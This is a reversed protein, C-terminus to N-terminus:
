NCTYGENTYYEKAYDYTKIEKEYSINKLEDDSMDKIQYKIVAKIYNDKEELSKKIHESEEQEERFNNALSSLLFQYEEPAEVSMSEELTSLNDDEFVLYAEEKITADGSKETKTCVLEKTSDCGTLVLVSLSLISVLCYRM